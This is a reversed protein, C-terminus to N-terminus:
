NLDIGPLLPHVETFHTREVSVFIARNDYSEKNFKTKGKADKLDEFWMMDPYKEDLANSLKRLCDLACYKTTTTVCVVDGFKEPALGGYRIVWVYLPEYIRRM